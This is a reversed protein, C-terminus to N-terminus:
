SAYVNVGTSNTPRYAQRTINVSGSCPHKSKGYWPVDILERLETQTEDTEKEHRLGREQESSSEPLGLTANKLM